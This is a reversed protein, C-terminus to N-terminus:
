LHCTLTDTQFALAHVHVDHWGMTEFDAETWIWKEPTYASM